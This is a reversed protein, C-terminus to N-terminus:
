PSDLSTPQSGARLLTRRAEAAYDSFQTPSLDLEKKIRKEVSKVIGRKRHYSLKEWAPDADELASRFRDVIFAIVGQEDINRPAKGGRATERVQGSGEPLLSEVLVGLPGFVLGLVFGESADRHKQTAVWASLAGMLVAMIGFFVLWEM